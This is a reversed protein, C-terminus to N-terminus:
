CIDSMAGLTSGDCGSGLEAVGHTGGLTIDRVDGYSIIVPKVYSLKAKAILSEQNKNSKDYQKNMNNKM